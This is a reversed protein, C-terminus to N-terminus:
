RFIYVTGEWVARDEFREVVNISSLYTAICEYQQEVIEKLQELNEKM